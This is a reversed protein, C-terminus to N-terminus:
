VNIAFVVFADWFTVDLERAAGILYSQRITGLSPVQTAIYDQALRNLDGPLWEVISPHIDIDVAPSGVQHGTIVLVRHGQIALDFALTIKVTVTWSVLDCGIRLSGSEQMGVVISFSKASTVSPGSFVRASLAEVATRILNWIFEQDIKLAIAYGTPVAPLLPRRARRKVHTGVCRLSDDIWTANFSTSLPLFDVQPLDVVVQGLSQVLAASTRNEIQLAISPTFAGCCSPMRAVNIGLRPSGTAYLRPSFNVHVAGLEQNGLLQLKLPVSLSNQGQVPVDCPDASLHILTARASQEIRLEFDGVFPEVVKDLNIGATAILADRTIVVEVDHQLLAIVHRIKSAVDSNRAGASGREEAAAADDTLATGQVSYPGVHQAAVTLETEFAQVRAEVEAISDKTRVLWDDFSM